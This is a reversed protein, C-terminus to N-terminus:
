SEQYIRYIGSPSTFYVDGKSNVAVAAPDTPLNQAFVLREGAPTIRFLIFEPDVMWWINGQSDIGLNGMTCCGQRDFQSVIETRDGAPNLRLLWREVVPGIGQREKESAFIYLLGDMGIDLMFDSVPKPLIVAQKAIMGSRNFRFIFKGEYESALLDGTKLEIAISTINVHDKNPIETVKGGGAPVYFLFPGYSYDRTAIYLSGDPAFALDRIEGRLDDVYVQRSGDDGIRVVQASTEDGCGWTGVYLADDPGIDVAYTNSGQNSVLVGNEGKDLNAWTIQSATPDMFLVKGPATFVFDAMHMSCPTYANEFHMLAGSTKDIKVFGSIVSSLYLNGSPDLELDLPDRMLVHEVLVKQSGDPNIRSIDGTETDSVFITGESDAIV